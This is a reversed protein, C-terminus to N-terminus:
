VEADNGGKWPEPQLMWATVMHPTLERDFICDFWTGRCYNVPVIRIEEGNVYTVLIDTEDEPLRESVPIWKAESQASPVSESKDNVSVLPCEKESYQTKQLAHCIGDYRFRCYGCHEPMEMNKILVSM